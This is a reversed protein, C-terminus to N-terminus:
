KYNRYKRMKSDNYQTNEIINERREREEKKRNRKERRNERREIGDRFMDIIFTIISVIIRVILEVLKIGISIIPWALVVILVWIAWKHASFFNIIKNFLEVIKQLFNAVANSSNGKQNNLVSNINMEWETGDHNIVEASIVLNYMTEEEPMIFYWDYSNLDDIMQSITYSSESTSSNYEANSNRFLNYINWTDINKLEESLNDFSSYENTIKSAYKFYEFAQDKYDATSGVASLVGLEKGKGLDKSYDWSYSTYYYNSLLTQTKYGSYIFCKGGVNFKCIQYKVKINVIEKVDKNVANNFNFLYTEYNEYSGNFWDVYTADLNNTTGRVYETIPYTSLTSNTASVKIGNNFNFIAFLSCLILFTISIKKFIKKM